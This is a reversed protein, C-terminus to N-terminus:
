GARGLVAKAGGAAEWDSALLGFILRDHWVGDRRMNRRLRGELQFGLREAVRQSARNDAATHIEIRELGFVQFGRDCLVAACRTIVGRGWHTATLWYGIQAANDERNRTHIGAAGVMVDDCWVGFENSDGSSIGQATSQVFERIDQEGTSDTAWGMWPKLHGLNALVLQYLASVDAEAFQRLQIGDGADIRLM